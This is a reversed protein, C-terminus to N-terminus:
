EIQKIEYDFMTDSFSGAEIYEELKDKRIRLYDKLDQRSRFVREIIVNHSNSHRDIAKVIYQISKVM